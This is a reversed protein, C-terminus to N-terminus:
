KVSYRKKVEAYTLRPKGEDQVRTETLDLFDNLDELEERLTAIQERKQRLTRLVTKELSQIVVIREIQGRRPNV